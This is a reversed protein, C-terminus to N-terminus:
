SRRQHGTLGWFIADVGARHHEGIRAPVELRASFPSPNMPALPAEKPWNGSGPRAACPFWSSGASCRWRPSACRRQPRARHPGRAQGDAPELPLVAAAAGAGPQRGHRRVSGAAVPAPPDPRVRRRLFIQVPRGAPTAISSDARTPLSSARPITSFLPLGRRSALAQIQRNQTRHPFALRSRDELPRLQPHVRRAEQGRAALDRAPRHQRLGRRLRQRPELRLDQLSRVLAGTVVDCMLWCHNYGMQLIVPRQGFYSASRFSTAPKMPSGCTWRSRRASSRSWTRAPPSSQEQQAGARPLWSTATRTAAAADGVRFLSASEAGRRRSRRWTAVSHPARRQM